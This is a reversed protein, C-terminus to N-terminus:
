LKKARRFELPSTDYYKRFAAAFKSQNSYGTQMAIEAVSGTTHLLLESALEMRKKLMYVSINEGYVGRFYNKLSTESVSFQSALEHASHHVGLDSTLIQEAKKAIEVQYRTYFTHTVPSAVERTHLLTNFLTLSYVKMQQLLKETPSDYLTWLKQFILSVEKEASAIYTYSSPCYLPPLKSLDLGLDKLLRNESGSACYLDMFFEMGEYSKGPYLYQNAAFSETLSLEGSKVYVYNDTNLLMECRGSICYNILLPGKAPASAPAAYLNPAPWTPASIRIYALVIGPFLPLFHIFGTGEKQQLVLKRGLSCPAEKVVPAVKCKEILDDIKM